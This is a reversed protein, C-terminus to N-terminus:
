LSEHAPSDLRERVQRDSRGVRLMRRRTPERVVLTPTAAHTMAYETVSGCPSDILGSHGHASMVVLDAQEERIVRELRTRVSGDGIVLARVSAGAQSARARIRDLYINAVRHNHEIVRRELDAGETDFAGERTIEPVPVVHVFLVEAKEFAAIRMAIPVVSEARPSGDLPVLIRQYRVEAKSAAASPVLLLSGSVRDILKRATSALDFDTVGREGHSCLATLDIDHQEAWSCIQEAAHGQILESRVGPELRHLKAALGDLHARAELQRIEWSLSDAPAVNAVETELVRLLTLRAGLACAIAHAHLMLGSGLESGDVCALVERLPTSNKPPEEGRVEGRDPRPSDVLSHPSLLTSGISSASM